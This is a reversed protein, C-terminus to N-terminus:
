VTRISGGTSKFHGTVLRDNRFEHPIRASGLTGAFWAIMNERGGPVMPLKLFYEVHAKGPLRM